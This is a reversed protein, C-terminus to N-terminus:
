CSHHLAAPAAKNRSAAREGLGLGHGIRPAAAPVAGAQSLAQELTEPVPVTM